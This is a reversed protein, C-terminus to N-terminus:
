SVMWFQRFYLSLKFTMDVESVPGISVVFMTANVILPSLGSLPRLRKEYDRLLRSLIKEQLSDTSHSKELGGVVKRVQNGTLFVVLLVPLLVGNTPVMSYLLYLTPQNTSRTNKSISFFMKHSFGIKQHFIFCKVCFRNKLPFFCKVCFVQNKIPFFCEMFFFCSKENEPQM